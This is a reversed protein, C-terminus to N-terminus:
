SAATSSSSNNVITQWRALNSDFHQQAEAAANPLLVKISSLTSAAFNVMFGIQLAIASSCCCSLYSRQQLLMLTPMAQAQHAHM